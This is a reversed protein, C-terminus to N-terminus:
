VWMMTQPGYRGLMYMNRNPNFTSIGVDLQPDVFNQSLLNTLLNRVDSVTKGAVEVEGAYPFFIKGNEDVIRKTYPSNGIYSQIPFYDNQGFVVISLEDGNSIKYNEVEYSQNQILDPTIKVVKSNKLSKNINPPDYMGPSLACGGLFLLSLAIFKLNNM